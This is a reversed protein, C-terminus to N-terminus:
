AARWNSTMMRLSLDGALMEKTLTKEKQGQNFNEGKKVSAIAEDASVGHKHMYKARQLGLLSSDHDRYIHSDFDWESEPTNHLYEAMRQVAKKHDESIEARTMGKKSM